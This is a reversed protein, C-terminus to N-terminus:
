GRPSRFDRKRRGYFIHAHGGSRCFIPAGRIITSEVPWWSDPTEPFAGFSAARRADDMSGPRLQIRAPEAARRKPNFYLIGRLLWSSSESLDGGALSLHANVMQGPEVQCSLVVMRDSGCGVSAETEAGSGSRIRIRFDGGLAAIRMVVNIKTGVPADARFRLTAEPLVARVGWREPAAWGSVCPAGSVTDPGEGGFALYRDAPLSGNSVVKM